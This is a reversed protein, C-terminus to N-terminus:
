VWRPMRLQPDPHITLNVCISRYYEEVCIQQEPTVGYALYFSARTEPSVTTYRRSMGISLWKLGGEVENYYKLKKTGSSIRVLASYFEQFIPIGGAISLGAQGVADIWCKAIEPHSLDKLSLCDKAIAKPCNRCMIYSDGLYVPKTQCFEIHEILYVPTEVKMNFGYSLFWSDLGSMFSGLDKSEMIVVCDDGNNCLSGVVGKDLLYRHMLACMILCNGLATNVDGSMRCGDTTYKLNGDSCFGVVNNNIQWKLLMKLHKDKYIANYVSHEWKLADASVHQDFRSADLGVAVPNKYKGWKLEIQKAMQRVNYGKFVTPEGFIRDISKYIRKEVPRLYVGVEVNYRPDRPSIVRPDPDPKDDSNIFEAKVFAKIKADRHCIGQSLLSDYARQYILKKRGKYYDVFKQRSVPTTSPFRKVILERFYSLHSFIGDIPKPTPEGKFTLVRSLVARALNGITSNHVLYNNPPSMGSIQFCRRKRPQAGARRRITLAPHTFSVHNACVGM